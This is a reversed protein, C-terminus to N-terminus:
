RGHSEWVRRMMRPSVKNQQAMQEIAFRTTMGSKKLADTASYVGQKQLKTLKPKPGRPKDPLAQLLGSLAQAISPRIKHRLGEIQQLESDLDSDSKIHGTKYGRKILMGLTGLLLEEIGKKNQRPVARGEKLGKLWRNTTEDTPFGSAELERALAAVIEKKPNRKAM